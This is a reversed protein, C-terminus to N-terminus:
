FQQDSFYSGNFDEPIFYNKPSKKTKLLDMVILYEVQKHTWLYAKYKTGKLVFSTSKLEEYYIDNELEEKLSSSLASYKKMVRYM